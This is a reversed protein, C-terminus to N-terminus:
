DFVQLFYHSESVLIQDLGVGDSQWQFFGPSWGVELVQGDSVKRLIRQVKFGDKEWEVKMDYGFM